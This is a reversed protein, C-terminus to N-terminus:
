MLAKDVLLIQDGGFQLSSLIELSSNGMEISKMCDMLADVRGVEKLNEEVEKKDNGSVQRFYTDVASTFDKAQILAYYPENIRFYKM